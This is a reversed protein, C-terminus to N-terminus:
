PEPVTSVRLEGHAPRPRGHHHQPFRCVIWLELGGYQRDAPDQRDQGGGPHPGPTGAGDIHDLSEADRIAVYDVHSFGAQGCRRRHGASGGRASRRRGRAQAIAEKLIVNLQGAIKREDAGSLCQAVVPGPRRSRARHARRHDRGAPGSRAGAAQVVLLQQYDKEGFVAIDPVAAILLKAVVTAVGAFFHPRFDSELGASPGGVSIRPPLATASVNGARQARVRHGGPGGLKALDASWTAPIPTSIRMRRSSPPISSSASWWRTPMAQPRQPVLPCTVTM